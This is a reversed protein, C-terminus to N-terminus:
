RRRRSQVVEVVIRKVKINGRLNLRVAGGRLGGRELQERVTLPGYLVLNHMAGSGIFDERNGRIRREESNHRGVQLSVVGRGYKSKARLRVSKIAKGRLDVGQEALKKRIKIISEERLVRNPNVFISYTQTVLRRRRHRSQVVEVVIRKVKINGRLNLRVAGGRIGGRELQERVLPGYLVLDYMAGNGIFDERNGRIRREESNYREVQLSAVGRGYKSKARLRVSRIAKGRLDVGQEALKRRIPITSEERLVEGQPLFISYRESVLRSSSERSNATVVTSMALVTMVMLLKKM